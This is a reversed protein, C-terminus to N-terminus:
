GWLTEPELRPGSAVAQRLRPGQPSETPGSPGEDILRGFFVARRSASELSGNVCIGAELQAGTGLLLREAPLTIRMLPDRDPDHDAQRWVVTENTGDPKQTTLSLYAFDMERATVCLANWWDDFSTAERLRLIGEDFERKLENAERAIMWNRRFAVISERLRVSGAFRFLLALLLAVCALVLVTEVRRTVMMFMGLGAALLTMAYMILVVHRQRLGMELFRHHIHSRDPSFISRRELIRRLISCATDFVPVGLALAPLALGVLTAPKMACVVSAAGLLFGLFLSGCDGMFVRAPNFNFFLFGALSGLLALMLVAMVPQGTHVAFVAIVGCAVASIGAALGDLGDILNIANTIAVIWFVTIPWAAWGLDLTFLGEVTISEIRIGFACAAVAAVVQALLKMRARLGRTDDIFGVLSMATALALMAIVKTQVERFADGITNNLIMVVITPALMSAVIAIGGIRPLATTHVKRTGPRDVAKMARGIRIVIPTLVLSAVAASLFTCIYTKM